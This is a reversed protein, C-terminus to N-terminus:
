SCIHSHFFVSVINNWQMLRNTKTYLLGRRTQWGEFITDIYNFNLNERTTKWYTIYMQTM